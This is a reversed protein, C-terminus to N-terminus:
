EIVIKKYYLKLAACVIQDDDMRKGKSKLVRQIASLYGNTNDRLDLAPM